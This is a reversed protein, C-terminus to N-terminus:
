AVKKKKIMLLDKAAYWCKGPNSYGWYEKTDLNWNNELDAPNEVISEVGNMFIDFVFAASNYDVYAARIIEIMLDKNDTLIQRAGAVDCTNIIRIVEAEDAKWYKNLNKQGFVVCKRAIDFVLNTVLPHCLWANSLTRYEIGHKPLRYEGALGYMLRRRPDDMNAFLSVCAVGLISDLAKIINVVESEKKQGIGLHLHGGASRFNVARGPLKIGEMGYVNLSPMCGFAVHEEASSELMASPIDFTTKISLKAKPNYMRALRQIGLLGGRINDTQHQLCGTAQTDYEAQFGDWYVKNGQRNGYTVAKAQEKSPLFSFAPILGGQGDEVFVEPDTGVTGTMHLHQSLNKLYQEEEIQKINALEEDTLTEFMFDNSVYLGASLAGGLPLYQLNICDKIEILHSREDYLKPYVASTIKIYEPFTHAYITCYKLRKEKVSKIVPKVIVDKQGIFHWAELRM